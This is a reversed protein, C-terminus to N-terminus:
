EGIINEELLKVKTNDENTENGPVPNRGVYAHGTAILSGGQGGKKNISLPSLVPQGPPAVQAAPSGATNIPFGTTLPATTKIDEVELIAKMKTITFTQKMLFSIIADTIDQALKPINGKGVADSGLSNVLADEIDKSLGM